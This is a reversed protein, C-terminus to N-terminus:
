MFMFINDNILVCPWIAHIPANSEEVCVHIYYCRNVSM